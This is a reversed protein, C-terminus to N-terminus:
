FLIGLTFPIFRVPQRSGDVQRGFVYHARMEAFGALTGAPFEAGVGANFGAFTNFTWGRVGGGNSNYYGAGAIAYPRVTHSRLTAVVNGNLALTRISSADGALNNLTADFRVGLPVSRARFWATALGHAGTGAGNTAVTGGGGIGLALRNEPTQAGSERPTAALSLVGLVVIPTFRQLM